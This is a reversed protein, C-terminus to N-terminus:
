VLAERVNTNLNTLPTQSIALIHKINCSRKNLVVLLATDVASSVSILLPRDFIMCLCGTQVIEVNLLFPQPSCGHIQGLSSVLVNL